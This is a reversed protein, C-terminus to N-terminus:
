NSFNDKLLLPLAASSFTRSLFCYLYLLTIKTQPTKNTYYNLIVVGIFCTDCKLYIFM